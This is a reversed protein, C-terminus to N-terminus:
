TKAYRGFNTNKKTNKLTIKLTKILTKENVIFVIDIGDYIYEFWNLIDPFANEAVKQCINAVRSHNKM